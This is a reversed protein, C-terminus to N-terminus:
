NRAIEKITAMFIPFAKHNKYIALLKLIKNFSQDIEDLATQVGFIQPITQTKDKKDEKMDDIDDNIQFIRGLLNGITSLKSVAIDDNAVFGALSGCLAFLAGTKGDVISILQKYNSTKKNRLNEELAVANSMKLLTEAAAKVSKQPEPSDTILLLAQALFQDGTLLAINNGFKANVSPLKRRKTADDVVDDHLLSATHILEVACAIKLLKSEPIDLLQGCAFLFRPRIRKATKSKFLHQKAESLLNNGNLQKAFMVEFKDLM